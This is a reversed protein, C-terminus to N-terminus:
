RKVRPRYNERVQEAILEVSVALDITDRCNPTTPEVKQIWGRCDDHVCIIGGHCRKSFVVGALNKRETDIINPKRASALV